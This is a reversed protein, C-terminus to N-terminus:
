FGAKRQAIVGRISRACVKDRDTTDGGAWRELMKIDLGFGMGSMANDRAQIKFIVNVIGLDVVWGFVVRGNVGAENLAQTLARSAPLCIDRRQKKTLPKM